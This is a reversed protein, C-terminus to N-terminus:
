NMLRTLLLYTGLTCVFVLPTYILTLFIGAGFISLWLALCLPCTILEILFKCAVCKFLLDRKVYLYQPFTLGDTNTDYGALMKKLGFVKCYASFANSNFWVLMITVLLAIVKLFVILDVM